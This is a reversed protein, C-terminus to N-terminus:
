PGADVKLGRKGPTVSQSQGGQEAAQHQQILHGVGGTVLAPSVSLALHGHDPLHHHDGAGCDAEQAM